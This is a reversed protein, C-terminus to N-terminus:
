YLWVGVTNSANTTGSMAQTSPLTNQSLLNGYMKASNTFDASSVTSNSLVTSVGIQPATTQASNNYLIGVYYIGASASYTSSFAKSGMSNSSATQWINGIPELANLEVFRFLM